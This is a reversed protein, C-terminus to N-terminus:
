RARQDPIPSLVSGSKADHRVVLVSCRARHAVRESVSGLASVGHLGRSGTVLLDAHASAALLADVPPHESWELAPVRMTARNAVAGRGVALAPELTQLRVLGDVDVPKGGTAAVLRLSAGFRIALEEAVTAAVLSESSGDVGAVISYPFLESDVPPRALLVACPAEHLVTTAVGGLIIGAARSRGHSGVALLTAREDRAAALLGRVPSSEVVRSEADALGELEREAAAAAAVAERELQMAAHGAAWGAQAAVSPDAVTLALLRGGPTLLQKAQSQAALGAESGDVGCVIREFTSMAGGEPRDHRGRVDGPM